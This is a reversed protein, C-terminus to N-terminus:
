EEHLIPLERVRLTADELVVIAGRRLPQEIDPWTNMLRAFLNDPHVNRLRFIIVSPASEGSFALLHGYDLDHTVITENNRRAEEMIQADSARAMGVDGVHRCKHDKATLRTGLERPVNM